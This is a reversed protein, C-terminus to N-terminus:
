IERHLQRSDKAILCPGAVARFTTKQYANSILRTLVGPKQFFTNAESLWSAAWAAMGACAAKNLGLDHFGLKSTYSSHGDMLMLVLAISGHRIRM